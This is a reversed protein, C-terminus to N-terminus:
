SMLKEAGSMLFLGGLVVRGILWIGGGAPVRFALAPSVHDRNETWDANVHAMACRPLRDKCYVRSYGSLNRRAYHLEAIGIVAAWSFGSCSPPPRPTRHLQMLRSTSEVGFSTICRMALRMAASPQCMTM